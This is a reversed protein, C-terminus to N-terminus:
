YYFVIGAFHGRGGKVRCHEELSIKWSMKCIQLEIEDIAIRINPKLLKLIKAANPYYVKEKM